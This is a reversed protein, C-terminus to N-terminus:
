ADLLTLSSWIGTPRSNWGVGVPCSGEPAMDPRVAGGHAQEALGLDHLGGGGPNRAPQTDSTGVKM